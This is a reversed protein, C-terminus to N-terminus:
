MIPLMKVQLFSGFAWCNPQMLAGNSRVMTENNNGVKRRNWEERRINMRRKKYENNGVKRRNWEERGINNVVM